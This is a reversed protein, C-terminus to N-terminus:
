SVNIHCHDVNHLMFFAKTIDTYELLTQMKLRTICHSKLIILSDECIKISIEGRVESTSMNIKTSKM